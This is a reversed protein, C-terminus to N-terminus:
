EKREVVLADELKWETMLMNEVESGHTELFSKLINHAICWHIASRMAEQREGDSLKLPLKLILGGPAFRRATRYVGRNQWLLIAGHPYM